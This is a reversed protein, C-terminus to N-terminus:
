PGFDDEYSNEKIFQEMMKMAKEQMQKMKDIDMQPSTSSSGSNPSTAAGSGMIGTLASMNCTGTVSDYAVGFSSCTRMIVEDTVEQVLLSRDSFCSVMYPEKATYPKSVIASLTIHGSKNMANKSFSRIRYRLTIFGVENEYDKKPISKPDFTVEISEVTLRGYSKGVELLSNGYKGIVKELKVPFTLKENTKLKEFAPQFTRYCAQSDSMHIRTRSVLDNMDMMDKIRAEMNIVQEGMHMFLYAIVGLLGAAVMVEMLAFGSQNKLKNM